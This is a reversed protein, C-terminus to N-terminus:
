VSIIIVQILNLVQLSSGFREHLSSNTGSSRPYFVLFFPPFHNLRIPTTKCVYHALYLISLATRYGTKYVNERQLM